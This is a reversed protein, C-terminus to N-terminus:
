SYCVIHAWVKDLHHLNPTRPPPHHEDRYTVEDFIHDHCRGLDSRWVVVEHRATPHDHLDPGVGCGRHAAAPAPAGGVDSHRCGTEAPHNPEDPLDSVVGDALRQDSLQDSRADLRDDAMLPPGARDDDKTVFGGGPAICGGFGAITVRDPTLSRHEGVATCRNVEIFGVRGPEVTDVLEV